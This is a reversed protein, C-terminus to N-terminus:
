SLFLYLVRFDQRQFNYEPTVLEVYSCTRNSIGKFIQFDERDLNEDGVQKFFVRWFESAPFSFAGVNSNQM